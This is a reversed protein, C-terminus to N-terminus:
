QNDEPNDMEVGFLAAYEPWLHDAFASAPVFVEPLVEPYSRYEDRGFMVLVGDANVAGEEGVIVVHDFTSWAAPLEARAEDEWGDFAGEGIELLFAHTAEIVGQRLAEIAASEDSDDGFMERFHMAREEARNWIVGDVEVIPQMASVFRLDRIAVSIIQDNVFRATATFEYDREIGPQPESGYHTELEEILMNLESTARERLAASMAEDAMVAGDISITAPSTLAPHAIEMEYDVSEQAAAVSLGALAAWATAAISSRKFSM